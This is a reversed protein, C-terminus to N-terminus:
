PGGIRRQTLSVLAPLVVMAAVLATFLVYICLRGFLRVMPLESFQTVAMGLSLIATTAILVPGVKDLTVDLADALTVSRREIRLRNLLHIANDVAIGFAITLALMSVIQLRAGSLYLLSTVMTLSMVSPVAALLGLLPSGVTVAVLGTTIAVAFGLSTRLGAIMRESELASFLVLGTTAITFDAFRDRVKDLRTDLAGALARAQAAPMSPMSASVLYAAGDASSLQGALYAPLQAPMGAADGDSLAALSLINAFEPQARLAAEVARLVPLAAGAEVAQGDRSEVLVYLADAGGLRADIRDIVANAPSDAALYARYDHDSGIRFYLAGSLALLPLSAAAIVLAHRRVLGAAAGTAASIARSLADGGGAAPWREPLVLVAVAPVATIVVVFATLVAAAAALAFERIALSDSLYLSLCAIATTLTTMACAPGVELTAERAARRVATGRELKRRIAQVLHLSDTFAIVLVLVPVVNSLTTIAVGALGFGGVVWVLVLFSPVSATLALRWDRFFVLCVAVALLLGLGTLMYLDRQLAQKIEHRIAVSGTVTLRLGSQAGAARGARAIEGLIRGTGDEAADDDALTVLIAATTRTGDMLRTAYHPHTRVQAYLRELAAGEPLNVGFLPAGPAGDDGQRRLSFVSAVGTVGEIFQLDLHLGRLTELQAGTMPAASEAVVVIQNELQPFQTQLRDYSADAASDSRFLRRLDDGFSVNLVGGGAAATVVALVTLMAAPARLGVLGLRELGFAFITM